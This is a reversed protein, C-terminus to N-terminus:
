CLTLMLTKDERPDCGLCESAFKLDFSFLPSIWLLEGKKGKEVLLLGNTQKRSFPDPFSFGMIFSYRVKFGKGIMKGYVKIISVGYERQPPLIRKKEKENQRRTGALNWM